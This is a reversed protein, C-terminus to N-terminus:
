PTPRGLERCSDFQHNACARELLVRAKVEDIPKSDPVTEGFLPQGLYVRAAYFCSAGSKDAGVDLEQSCGQEFFLAARSLDVPRGGLGDFYARGVIYCAGPGLGNFPLSVGGLFCGREADAVNQADIGEKSGVFISTLRLKRFVLESCARGPHRGACGTTLLALARPPDVDKFPYNWTGVREVCLDGHGHTCGLERWQAAKASAKELRALEACDDYRSGLRCDHPRGHLKQFSEEASSDRCGLVLGGVGLVLVINTLSAKM